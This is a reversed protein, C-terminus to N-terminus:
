HTEGPPIFRLRHLNFSVFNKIHSKLVSFCSEIPNCMPSYPGLRLIILRDVPLPPDFELMRDSILDEAREHAGANDIVLVIRKGAYDPQQDAWQSASIFTDLLFSANMDMGIKDYLYNVNVLGMGNSVACQIMLNKGQSTPVITVARQGEKARGLHRSIYSNDNTEDCYVIVYGESRYMELQVAFDRRAVKNELSNMTEKEQRVQKVTYTMGIIHRSITSISVTVDHDNMINIMMQEPTIMPNEELYAEVSILM